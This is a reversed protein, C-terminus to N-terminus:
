GCTRDRDVARVSAGIASARACCAPGAHALHLEGAIGSKRDTRLGHRAAASRTLKVDRFHKLHACFRRGAGNAFISM